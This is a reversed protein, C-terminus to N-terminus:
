LHKDNNINVLSSIKDVIDSCFPVNKHFHPVLVNFKQSLVIFDIKAEVQMEACAYLEIYEVVCIWLQLAIFYNFYSAYIRKMEFALAKDEKEIEEFYIEKLPESIEYLQNELIFNMFDYLPNGLFSKEWERIYPSGNVSLINWPTLKGNVIRGLDFGKGFSMLSRRLEKFNERESNLGITKLVKNSFEEGFFYAFDGVHVVINSETNGHMISKTKLKAIKALVSFFRRASKMDSFVSNSGGEGVSLGKDYSKLLASGSEGLYEFPYIYMASPSVDLSSVGRIFNYELTLPNLQSFSIKLNYEKENESKIIYSDYDYKLNSLSIEETSLKVFSRKNIDKIINSVVSKESDTIQENTYYFAKNM